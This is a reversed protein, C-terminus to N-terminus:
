LLCCGCCSTFSRGAAAAGSWATPPRVLGANIMWAVSGQRQSAPDFSRAGFYLEM